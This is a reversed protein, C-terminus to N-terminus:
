PPFSLSAFRVPVVNEIGAAVQVVIVYPECFRCSFFVVFASMHTYSPTPNIVDASVADTVHYILFARMNIPYLVRVVGPIPFLTM